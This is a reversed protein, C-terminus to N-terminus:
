FRLAVYLSPLIPLQYVVKGTIRDVYFINKRNYANTVSLQMELKTNESLYFIRKASLDLRHYYPLRANNYPGYLIGLQMQTQDVSQTFDNNWTLSPYYGTSQTFPFGSGLNWRLSFEYKKIDGPTYTLIVNVNHRRDYHPYYTILGDTRRVYGFTYVVWAYFINSQYKISTEIGDAYGKEIIFDKKLYDPKDSYDPSDDYIKNRNLTILQSFNKYYAEIGLTLYKAFPGLEIGFIAHQAKQLRSTVDKGEFKDQLNDPGSLFGYFLNVIDRDSTSSLLNQSYFGGASKLSVKKSLNYKLSFRPEPSIESLSPYTHLRFGPELILKKIIKKYTVYGAFETTNEKQQILRMLANYLQLDTSFGLMELGFKIEAQKPLYYNVTLGVNFGSISSYKPLHSPDTLTIDYDSYAVVGEVTTPVGAPLLLFNAGAGHAKWHYYAVNQYDAKDTFNFGFFNVKSGNDAHFTIKGYIDQYDFPLGATDVYRYVVPSTQSLFSNKGALIITIAGPSDEQQKKIPGEIVTNLGFPSGSVFGSWRKKNGDRTTIDMISSIRGGYQAGFGGTYVDVNRIIETEFVSFFGISHFPNYIVMGDLIVKNQITSGGRIYLQGGQDGTTIIGPINTLYQALDPTGFTPLQKIQIPDVKEVSVQTRTTDRSRLASIEVTKLVKTSKQMYYKKNIFEHPQVVIEERITDYGLYTVLLTYKGPPVQTIAFYGKLDTAAGLTTGKLYVNAFMIPEGSSKDYVFGRITANQGLLMLSMVLFLSHSFAKLMVDADKINYM